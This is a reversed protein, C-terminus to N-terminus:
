AVSRFYHSNISILTNPMGIVMIRPILLSCGQQTLRIFLEVQMYRDFYKISFDITRFIYKLEFNEFIILKVRVFRFDVVFLGVVRQINDLLVPYRYATFGQLSKNVNSLKNRHFLNSKKVAQPPVPEFNNEIM